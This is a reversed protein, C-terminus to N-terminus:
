CAIAVSEEDDAVICALAPVDGAASAVPDARQGVAGGTRIVSRVRAHFSGETKDVFLRDILTPKLDALIFRQSWLM